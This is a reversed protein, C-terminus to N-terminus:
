MKVITLYIESPERGLNDRLNGIEIDDNFLIQAIDDSYINEEDEKTLLNNDLLMQIILDVFRTDEDFLIDVWHSM